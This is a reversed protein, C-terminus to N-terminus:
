QYVSFLPLYSVLLFGNFFIIKGLPYEESQNHFAYIFETSVTKILWIKNDVDWELTFEHKGRFTRRKNVFGIGTYEKDIASKECLGLLELRINNKIECVFGLDM